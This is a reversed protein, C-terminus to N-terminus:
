YNKESDNDFVDIIDKVFSVFVQKSNALIVLFMFFAPLIQLLCNLPNVFTKLVNLSMVM